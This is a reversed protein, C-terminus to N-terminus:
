IGSLIESYIYIHWTYIYIDYGHISGSPKDSVMDSHQTLHHPDDSSFIKNRCADALMLDKCESQLSEMELM